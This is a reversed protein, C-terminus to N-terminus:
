MTPIFLLVFCFTSCLMFNSDSGNSIVLFLLHRCKEPQLVAETHMCQTDGSSVSSSSYLALWPVICEVYAYVVMCMSCTVVCVRYVRCVSLVYWMCVSHIGHAYHVVCEMCVCVCVCVCVYVCVCVCVTCWAGYVSWTCRVSGCHVHQVVKESALYASPTWTALPCIHPDSTQLDSM